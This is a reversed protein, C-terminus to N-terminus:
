GGGWFIYFFACGDRDLQSSPQRWTVSFALRLICMCIQFVYKFLEEGNNRWCINITNRRWTQNKEPCLIYRSSSVKTGVNESSGELSLCILLYIYFILHLYILCYIFTSCALAPTFPHASNRTPTTPSTRESTVSVCLGTPPMPSLPARHPYKSYSCRLGPGLM